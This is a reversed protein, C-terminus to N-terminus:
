IFTANQKELFKEQQEMDDLNQNLVTQLTQEMEDLSDSLTFTKTVNYGCKEAQYFLYIYANKRSNEM